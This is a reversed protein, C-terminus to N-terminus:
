RFGWDDDTGEGIGMVKMSAWVMADMNNPSDQHRRRGSEDDIVGGPVYSTMQEELEAFEGPADPTPGLIHHQGLEALTAIPHARTHKDTRALVAQYPISLRIMRLVSEVLDGVRNREATVFDAELRDYVDIAASGWGEPPYKGSADARVYCHEDEARSAGVIGTNDSTATMTFAPDVGVATLSWDPVFRWLGRDHDYVTWRRRGDVVQIKGRHREILEGTWLAGEVDELLMGYLEQQGIRTGSYKRRMRELFKAPLNAANDFTTEHTVEVDPDVVLDRLEKRPVPTTSIYM